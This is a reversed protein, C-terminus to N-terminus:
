VGASNGTSSSTLRDTSFRERTASFKRRVENVAEQETAQHLADISRGFHKRMAIRAAAADRNALANFISRHEDLRTQPDTSCVAQHAIKIHALGEQADWMNQIVSALVRNNTAEAIIAHFKRDAASSEIHETENELAMEELAQELAELQEDTIMYAALAAAEGEILVRTEVLEFPSAKSDVGKVAKKALVYVGSGNKVSVRQKAELAIIAERITPRSVGFRQSLEREAPLRSGVSYEGSAILELIQDVVQRYLRKGSGNQDVAM